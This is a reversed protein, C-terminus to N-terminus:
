VIELEESPASQRNRTTVGDSIAQDKPKCELEKFDMEEPKPCLLHGTEEEIECENMDFRAM